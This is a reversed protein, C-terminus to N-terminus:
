IRIQNLIKMKQKRRKAYIMATDIDSHGLFQQIFEITAGNDLLHTAISHRLCHLTIEKRIMVPNQTKVILQKLRINIDAGSKRMGKNNIFLANTVCKSGNLYKMREYVIFERIDKLVADSMPVTRSKHNKSDRIIIIGQLLLVDSINLNELESRRLGCGYALSLIATDIKSECVNYLQKIEETTLVSREKNRNLYFKPLRAPSNKIIDTDLLYDFFLRLSFLHCKIYSDSLGGGRRQNPRESLYVQYTIIESASVDRIKKIGRTEIFFLFEKVCDPYLCNKGRNYGKTKVFQEFEEHLLQFQRNYVPLHKM